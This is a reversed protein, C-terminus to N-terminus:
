AATKLEAALERLKTVTTMHVVDGEKVGDEIRKTLRKALAEIAQLENIPKYEPEPSCEWWKVVDITAGDYKNNKNKDFTKSKTDYKFGCVEETWAILANKRIGKAQMTPIRNVLVLMNQVNGDAKWKELASVLAFQIDAERMALSKDAKDFASFIAEWTNLAKRKAM